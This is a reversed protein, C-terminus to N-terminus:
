LILYSCMVLSSPFLSVLKKSLQQNLKDNKLLFQCLYSKIFNIDYTASHFSSVPLTNCYRESHEQLNILQNKQMQLFQTSLAKEEATDKFFEDNDYDVVREGQSHRQIFQELVSSLKIKIATEAEIFWLKM